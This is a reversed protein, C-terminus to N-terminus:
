GALIWRDVLLFSSRRKGEMEQDMAVAVKVFEM